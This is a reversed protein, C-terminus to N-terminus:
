RRVTEVIREVTKRDFLYYRIGVSVQGSIDNSGGAKYGDIQDNLLMGAEATVILSWSEDIFYDVGVGGGFSMDWMQYKGSTLAAGNDIRPTYFALGVRGFLFPDFPQERLFDYSAGINGYLVTSLISQNATNKGTFTNLGLKSVLGWDNGLAYSFDASAGFGIDTSKWDSQLTNGALSLGIGLKGRGIQAHIPQVITGLLLGVVTLTILNTKM